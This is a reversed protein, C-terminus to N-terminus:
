LVFSVVALSVSPPSKNFTLDLMMGKRRDNRERDGEIEEENSGRPNGTGTDYRGGLHAVNIGCIGDRNNNVTM